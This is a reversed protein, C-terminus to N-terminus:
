DQLMSEDIIVSILDVTEEINKEALSSNYAKRQNEFGNNMGVMSSWVAIRKAKSVTKLDFVTSEHKFTNNAHKFGSVLGKEVNSFKYNPNKRKEELCVGIWTLMNYFYYELNHTDGTHLANKFHTIATNKYKVLNNNDM